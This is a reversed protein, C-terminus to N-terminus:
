PNLFKKAFEDFNHDTKLPPIFEDRGYMTFMNFLLGLYLLVLAILDVLLLALNPLILLSLHVM